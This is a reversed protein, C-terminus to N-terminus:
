LAEDIAMRTYEHGPWLRTSPPLAAVWRLSAWMVEPTGEFLNGITLGFLLDGPFLDTGDVLYAVHDLTHGPTPAAEVMVGAIRWTGPKAIVPAGPYRSSVAAAGGAHDHHHHTVLVAAARLGRADLASFVPGAEGPDVVLAAGGEGEVLYAYNDSLVPVVHVRM